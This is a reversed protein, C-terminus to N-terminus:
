RRWYRTEMNVSTLRHIQVVVEREYKEEGEGGMCRAIQENTPDTVQRIQRALNQGNPLGVGSMFMKGM